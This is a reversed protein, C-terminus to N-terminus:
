SELLKTLAEAPMPKALMFGQGLEVGLGRLLNAEGDTEIGEAITTADISAAVDLIAQVLSPDDTLGLRSVFARDIKILDIPFSQLYSLASYGTGFDDLAIRIGNSALKEFTRRTNPGALVSETLEVVVSNPDVTRNILDVLGDAFDADNLQRGSVNISCYIDHGAMRWEALDHVARHAVWRGIDGIYGAEEALPIFLAPSILGRRPDRWRILAEAGVIRESTLDVIPQYHLVFQDRALADALSSKLLLEETASVEMQADFVVWRDKGAEKAKYMALDAARLLDECGRGSGDDIVIGISATLRFQQGGVRVPRALADRLRDAVITAEGAGRANKVLVGFEDGGLRAAVDSVRLTQQIRDGIVVLVQDGAEHGLSDNIVKFGDLDVFLIATVGDEDDTQEIAESVKLSFSTRNPLGTLDDHLAQYRLDNELSKRETIDRMALVVGEVEPQTRMDTARVELAHILGDGGQVFVEFTMDAAAGLLISRVRETESVSLMEFISSGLISAVPVKLIREISPSVYTVIEDDNVVAVVDHSHQVMLRFRAESRLLNAEVARRDDIDRATIVVGGIVDAERLDRVEIEFWRQNGSVDVLRAEASATDSGLGPSDLLQLVQARDPPHVIGLLPAGVLESEYRGLLRHVTPSVFTVIGGDDSVLVVDSSNEVLARFRRDSRRQYLQESAVVGDLALGLQSGMSAITAEQERRILRPSTVVLVLPPGNRRLVPSAVTFYDGTWGDVTDAHIADVLELTLPQEDRLCEELLEQAAPGAHEFARVEAASRGEAAITTHVEPSRREYLVAVSEGPANTINLAAKLTSEIIDDQSLMAMLRSALTRLGEERRATKEHDFVVLTTRMFVLFILCVTAAGLVARDLATDRLSPNLLLIPGAAIAVTSLAVRATTLEQARYPPRASLRLAGPHQAAAAAVLFAAPAIISSLRLAGTRGASEILLLIDNAVVGFTAWAILYYSGNRVGPGFSIRFVVGILAITLVSYGLNGIRDLIPVSSDTLYDSLILAYMVTGALLAAITSDVTNHLQREISRSRVFSMGALFLCAYAGYALVDAPSPYAYEEGIQLGHVLRVVASLFALMAGVIMIAWPRSARGPHARVMSSGVVLFTVAAGARAFPAVVDGGVAIVGAVLVGAAVLTRWRVKVIRRDTM